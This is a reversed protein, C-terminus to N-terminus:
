GLREERLEPLLERDVSSRRLRLAFALHRHEKVPFPV